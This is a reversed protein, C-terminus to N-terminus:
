RVDLELWMRNAPLIAEGGSSDCRERLIFETSSFLVVHDAPPLTMLNVMMEAVTMEFRFEGNVVIKLRLSPPYEGLMSLVKSARM